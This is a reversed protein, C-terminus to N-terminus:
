RNVFSKSSQVSVHRLDNDKRPRGAGTMGKRRTREAFRQCCCSVVDFNDVCKFLRALHEISDYFLAVLLKHFPQRIQVPLHVIGEILIRFDIFDNKGRCFLDHLLIKNRLYFPDIRIQDDRGMRDDRVYQSLKFLFPIQIIRDEREDGIILDVFHIQIRGDVRIDDCAFVRFLRKNFLTDLRILNIWEAYRCAM